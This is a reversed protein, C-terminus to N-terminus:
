ALAPPSEQRSRALLTHNLTTGNPIPRPPPFTETSVEAVAAHINTIPPAPNASQYSRSDLNEHGLLPTLQHANLQDRRAGETFNTNHDFVDHNKQYRLSVVLSQMRGYGEEREEEEIDSADDESIDVDGDDEEDAINDNADDDDDGGEWEGGSSTADSEDEMDDVSNYGEIHQRSRPKQSVGVKYGSRRPRGTSTPQEEGEGTDKIIGVAPQESEEHQGSHIIEGYAGGVRSKVQRGSATFTPGAPEAPTSVGSQRTSNRVSLADSGGEEEDSYTYRIRKGRTRGEYLSFGPEPRTFQAKRANRYDRRKRKQICPNTCSRLLAIVSKSIVFM